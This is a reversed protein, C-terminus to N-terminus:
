KNVYTNERLELIGMYMLRRIADLLLKRYNDEDNTATNDFYEKMETVIEEVSKIDRAIDILIMDLNDPYYEEIKLHLIDPVLVVLHISREEKLKNQIYEKIDGPTDVRWNWGAEILVVEDSIGISAKLIECDAQMFFEQIASYKKEDDRYLAPIYAPKCLRLALLYKSHELNFIDNTREAYQPHINKEVYTEVKKQFGHVDGPLLLLSDAPFIAPATHYMMEVTRKFAFQEICDPIAISNDPLEDKNKPQLFCASAAVHSLSADFFSLEYVKTSISTKMKRCAEIIRYYVTPYEKRLCKALHDCVYPMKKFGGVTHIMNVDPIDSFLVYEKYMPDDVENQMFYTIDVQSYKSYYYLLCQEFIFNLGTSQVKNICNLNKDVFRFAESCYKKIFQNNNGGIIGANAAFVCDKLNRQSPLYSPIFDFHEYIEELMERYYFLDKEINQAVMDAFLIRKEFDAWIFVDGDFHLFPETQISYSFIKALAWLEPPYNDLTKELATSVATYPLDLIDVLIKKGLEDTVLEITGFYKKLQLCSLAWSMWHYEPSLWGGKIDFFNTERQNPGTWFTQLIKM